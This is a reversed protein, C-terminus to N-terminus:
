GKKVFKPSYTLWLEEELPIVLVNLDRQGEWHAIAAPGVILEM